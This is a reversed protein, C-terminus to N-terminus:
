NIVSPGRNCFIYPEAAYDIKSHVYCYTTQGLHLVLKNGVLKHWVPKQHAWVKIVLAKNGITTCLDFASLTVSVVWQNFTLSFHCGGTIVLLLSLSFLFSDSWLPWLVHCAGEACVGSQQRFGLGADWINAAVGLWSCVPAMRCERGNWAAIQWSDAPLLTPLMRAESVGANEVTELGKLQHFLVVTIVVGLFILVCVCVFVRRPFSGKMVGSTLLLQINACCDSCFVCSLPQSKVSM